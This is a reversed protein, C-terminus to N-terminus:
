CLVLGAPRRRRPWLAEGDTRRRGHGAGKFDPTKAEIKVKENTVQVGGQRPPEKTLRDKFENAKTEDAGEVTYHWVLSNLFRVKDAFDFMMQDFVDVWDALAFLESFGRSASKAKNIANYFCDGRLRGFNEDNPDEIKRVIEFSRSAASAGTRSRQSRRVAYPFSLGV